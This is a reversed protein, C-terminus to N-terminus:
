WGSELPVVDVKVAETVTSSGTLSLAEEIQSGASAPTPWRWKM